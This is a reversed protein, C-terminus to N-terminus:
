RAATPKMSAPRRKETIGPWARLVSNVSNATGLLLLASQRQNKLSSDEGPVLAMAFSREETRKLVSLM